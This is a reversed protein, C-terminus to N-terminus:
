IVVVVGWKGRGGAEPLQWEIKQKQSNSETLHRTYISDHLLKDEQSESIESLIIDQLNMWTTAYTLTEKRKLASYNDLIYLSWTKNMWEDM